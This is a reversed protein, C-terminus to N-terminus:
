PVTALKSPVPLITTSEKMLQAHPLANESLTHNLRTRYHYKRSKHAATESVGSLM